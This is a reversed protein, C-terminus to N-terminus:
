SLCVYLSSIACFFYLMTGFLFTISLCPQVMLVTSLTVIFLLVTLGSEKDIIQFTFCQICFKYVM